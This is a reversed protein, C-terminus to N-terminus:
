DTLTGTTHTVRGGMVTMESRIGPLADPEVTFPDATPVFFDAAHGPVLLGRSAEEFTFWTGGHSYARLADELSLRHRRARPAAKDVSGGTVLWWISAWPQYWNARNADTGGAIPVGHLVMDGIPPTRATAEAGWCEVYDSAKLVLRNQVLVGVGLEAIRDINDLSAEDAHVISFRLPRLDHDRAVLEWADLIRGLTHDLVAHMSMSWGRAAAARSIEVLEHWAEDPMEYPDLGEMDPCGYHTIEGIGSIRVLDDGFGPAVHRMWQALEAVEAGRTAASM